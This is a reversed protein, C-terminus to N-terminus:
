GTMHTVARKELTLAAEALGALATFLERREPEGLETRLTYTEAALEAMRGAPGGTVQLTMFEELLEGFRDLGPLTLLRAALASWAAGAERYASAAEPRGIEDLFDAYIPRTAGPAGYEMELCVHLRALPSFLDGPFRRLWGKRTTLDGLEAALKRMGSVGFNVDFAHGLVPGTLHAATTALAGDVDPAGEPPGAVTLIQCRRRGGPEWAAAFDTMPLRLPTVCEDDVLLDDGDRGIVAVPYPDGFPIGPHWPLRHRDVWCIAPTGNRLRETLYGMARRASRFEMLHHPVRARKLAAPIFPDPHHQTVVTVTTAATYEFIAYMFGIGGGLGACMAESCDTGAHKLVRSLLASPHHVGGGAAPYGPLVFPLRPPAGASLVHRRATTYSEGTRTMRDRVRKKFTKRDTM